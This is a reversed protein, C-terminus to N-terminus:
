YLHKEISLLLNAAVDHQLKWSPSMSIDEIRPVVPPQLEYGLPRVTPAEGIQPQHEDQLRHGNM